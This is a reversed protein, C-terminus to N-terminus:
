TQVHSTSHFTLCSFQIVACPHEYSDFIYEFQLFHGYLSFVPHLASNLVVGRLINDFPLAEMAWRLDEMQCFIYLTKFEVQYKVLIYCKQLKVIRLHPPQM